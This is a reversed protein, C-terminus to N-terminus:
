RTRMWFLAPEFRAGMERLTIRHFQMLAQIQGYPETMAFIRQLEHRKQEQHERLVHPCYAGCPNYRREIENGQRRPCDTSIVRIWDILNLNSGHRQVLRMSNYRGKRPCHRCAVIIWRYRKAEDGLTAVTGGM